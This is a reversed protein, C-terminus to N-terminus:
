AACRCKVRGYPRIENFFDRRLTSKERQSNLVTDTVNRNEKHADSYAYVSHFIAGCHSIRRRITFHEAARFTFHFGDKVRRLLIESRLLKVGRLPM